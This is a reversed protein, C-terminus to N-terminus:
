KLEIFQDYLTEVEFDERENYGLRVMEDEVYYFSQNIITNFLRHLYKNYDESREKNMDLMDLRWIDAEILKKHLFDIQAKSYDLVVKGSDSGPNNNSSGPNKFFSNKVKLEEIEKKQRSIIEEMKSTDTENMQSRIRIYKPLDVGCNNAQQELEIKEEPSLLVTVPILQEGSKRQFDTLQKDTEANFPKDTEYVTKDTQNVTKGNYFANMKCKESCYLRNSRGEFQDGCQPCTKIEM